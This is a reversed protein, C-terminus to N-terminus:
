TKFTGHRSGCLEVSGIKDFPVASTHWDLIRGNAFLVSVYPQMSGAFQPFRPAKESRDFFKKPLRRLGEATKLYYRSSM